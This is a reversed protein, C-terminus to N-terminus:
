SGTRRDDVPLRVRARPARDMWDHHGSLTDIRQKKGFIQVDVAAPAPASGAQEWLFVLEEPLGPHLSTVPAKGRVLFVGAPRQDALGDAGAVQLIDDVDRRSQEASIEVVARVAIWRDGDHRLRIPAQGLLRAGTVTVNWPQG